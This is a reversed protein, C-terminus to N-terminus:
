CLWKPVMQRVIVIISVWFTQKRIASSIFRKTGKDDFLTINNLTINNKDQDSALSIATEGNKDIVTLKRCTIEDFVDNRQAALPSTFISGIGIGVAMLVAGIVMYQLKEFRKLM